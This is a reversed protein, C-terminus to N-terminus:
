QRKRKAKLLKRAVRMIKPNYLCVEDRFYIGGTEDKAKFFSKRPEKM